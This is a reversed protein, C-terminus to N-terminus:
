DSHCLSEPCVGLGLVGKVEDDSIHKGASRLQRLVSFVRDTFKKMSPINKRALTHLELRLWAPSTAATKSLHEVFAAWVDGVEYQYTEHDCPM